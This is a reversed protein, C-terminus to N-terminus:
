VELLEVEVVADFKMSYNKCSSHVFMCISREYMKERIDLKYLCIGTITKNYLTNKLSMSINMPIISQDMKPFFKRHIYTRFKQSESHYLNFLIRNKLLLLNMFITHMLQSCIQTGLFVHRCYYINENFFSIIKSFKVVRYGLLKFKLYIIMPLQKRLIPGLIVGKFILM